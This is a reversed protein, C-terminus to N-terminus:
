YDAYDCIGKIMTFKPATEEPTEYIAHCIGASEMEIVELPQGPNGLTKLLDERTRSDAIVKDGCAVKVVKVESKRYGELCLELTGKDIDNIWDEHNVNKAIRILDPSCNFVQPRWEIGKSTIKQIEYDVVNEAIVVDGKQIRDGQPDAAAIGVLIIYNPTLDYIADRAVLAASVRGKGEACVFAMKVSSQKDPSKFDIIRYERIGIPTLFKDENLMHFKVKLADFEKRLATIVVIDARIDWYM